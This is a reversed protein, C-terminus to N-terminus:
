KLKIAVAGILLEDNENTASVGTRREIFRTAKRLFGKLSGSKEAEAPSANMAYSPTTTTAERTVYPEVVPDTVAQNNNNQQLSNPVKNEHAAIVQEEPRQVPVPLNNTRKEEKQAGRAVTFAPKIDKTKAVRKAKEVVVPTAAYTAVDIAPQPQDIVAPMQQHGNSPTAKAPAVAVPPTVGTENLDAGLWLAAGTGALLLVAPAVRMWYPIMRRETTTRYLSKKDPFSIAEAPNSKTQLLLRYQLQLDQNAALRQEVQRREREALENDIYLLLSEDISAIKMHGSFLESKHELKVPEAPLRTSCLLDLEEQLQQYRAAFTEVAEKERANLEEDVYLLFWEEYNELTILPTSHNNNSSM